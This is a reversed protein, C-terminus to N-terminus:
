YVKCDCISIEGLSKKKNLKGNKKYRYSYANDIPISSMNITDPYYYKSRLWWLKKLSKFTMNIAMGRKLSDDQIILSEIRNKRFGNYTFWLVQKEKWVVVKWEWGEKFTWVEVEVNRGGVTSFMLGKGVNNVTYIGIDFDYFSSASNPLSDIEIQKSGKTILISHPLLKVQVHEKIPSYFLPYYTITKDFDTFVFNSDASHLSQFNGNTFKMQYSGDFYSTLYGDNDHCIRPAKLSIQGDTSLSIFLIFFSLLQKFLM